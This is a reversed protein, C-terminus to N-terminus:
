QTLPQIPLAKLGKFNKARKEALLDNAILKRFMEDVVELLQSGVEALALVIAVSWM